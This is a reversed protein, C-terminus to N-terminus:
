KQGEGYIRIHKAKKELYKEVAKDISANMIEIDNDQIEGCFGNVSQAYAEAESKTSYEYWTRGMADEIGAFFRM